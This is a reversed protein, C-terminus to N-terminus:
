ESDFMMRSVWENYSVSDVKLEPFKGSVYARAEGLNLHKTKGGNRNNVLSEQYERRLDQGVSIKKASRSSNDLARLRSTEGREAELEEATKQVRMVQPGSYKVKPEDTEDVEPAYTLLEEARAWIFAVRLNFFTVPWDNVDLWEQLIGLNTPRKYGEKEIWQNFRIAEQEAFEQSYGEFHDQPPNARLFDESLSM